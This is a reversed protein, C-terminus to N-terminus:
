YGEQMKACWNGWSGSIYVFKFVSM